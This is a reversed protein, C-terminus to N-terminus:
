EKDNMKKLEDLIAKDRKHQSAKNWDGQIDVMMNGIAVLAVFSLVFGLWFSDAVAATIAGVIACIGIVGVLGLCGQM